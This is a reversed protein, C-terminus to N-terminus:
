RSSTSRTRGVNPTRTRSLCFHKRRSRRKRLMRQAKCSAWSVKRRRRSNSREKGAARTRETYEVCRSCNPPKRHQRDCELFEGTSDGKAIETELAKRYSARMDAIQKAFKAAGADDGNDTAISRQDALDSLQQNYSNVTGSLTSTSSQGTVFGGVMGIKNQELLTAVRKQAAEMSTAFKDASDRAEDLALKINNQPKHELKAIQNELKDNTVDLAATASRQGLELSAFGQEIAKPVKQTKDIFDVVEKGLKALVGTLALAGVVPFAAQLASGIGPITSLFKEAARISGNMGGELSRIAASAAQSSSVSSRGAAESAAAFQKIKSNAKDLAASYSAADVTLVVKVSGAADSM